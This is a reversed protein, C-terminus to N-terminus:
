VIGEVQVCVFVGVKSEVDVGVLEGISDGVNSGVVCVALEGLGLHM